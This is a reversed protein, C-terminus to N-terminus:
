KKTEYLGLTNNETDTFIAFYSMDPIETKQIIIKGGSQQIISVYEDISSVTIYNTISHGPDQRKMMGGTIGKNGKEDATDFYWYDMDPEKPNSWKQMSWGFVNKYFTQARDANDFALDFHEITPM